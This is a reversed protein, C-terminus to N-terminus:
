QIIGKYGDDLMIKQIVEEISSKCIEETEGDDNEWQTTWVDDVKTIKVHYVESDENKYTISMSTRPDSNSPRLVFTKTKASKMYKTAYRDNVANRNFYMYKPIRRTFFYPCVYYIGTEEDYGHIKANILMEDSENTFHQKEFDETCEKNKYDRLYMNKIGEGPHKNIFKSIEYIHNYISILIM